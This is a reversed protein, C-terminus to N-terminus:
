GRGLCRSVEVVRENGPCCEREAAERTAFVRANQLKNTYSSPRGPPAVYAGDSRIIVFM